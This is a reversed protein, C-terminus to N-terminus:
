IRIGIMLMDDTQPENAIEKWKEIAMEMQEKQRPMSLTSIEQLL